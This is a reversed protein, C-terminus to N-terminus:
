LHFPSKYNVTNYISKAKKLETQLDFDSMGALYGPIGLRPDLFEEVGPHAILVAKVMDVKRQDKREYYGGFQQGNPLVISMTENQAPVLDTVATPRGQQQKANYAAELYGPFHSPRSLTEPNLYQRMKPDNGWQATKFEIVMRVEEETGEKAKLVRAFKEVNGKATARFATGAVTNLHEVLRSAAADIEAKKATAKEAKDVVTLQETKEVPEVNAMNVAQKPKQPAKPKPAPIPSVKSKQRMERLIEALREITVAIRFYRRSDSPRHGIEILGSSLLTDFAAETQARRYGIKETIQQQTFFFWGDADAHMEAFNVFHSFVITAKDGFALLMDDPITRYSFANRFEDKTMFFLVPGVSRCTAGLEPNPTVWFTRNTPPLRVDNSQSM